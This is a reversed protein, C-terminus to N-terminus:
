ACVERVLSGLRDGASGNERARLAERMRDLRPADGLLSSIEEWLRCPTLGQEELVLAGGIGEMWRANALQHGGAHPYPILIAPVRLAVMEAIGTAGARTIALTAASFADQMERLFPFVRAKMEMARYASEVRAAEAPGAIHLVQIERRRLEPAERWMALGLANVARSGQSGGMMLVVPRAADLGYAALAAARDATKGDFRIPNGTVKVRAKPHLYRRTDPFSVAVADVCGALLRNARGPVVNQEHIVTPIGRTRALFIGVAGLYGGFGVVVDPDSRRFFARMEGVARIQHLLYRPSLWKWLPTFPALDVTVWPDRSSGALTRDVPRRTSVFLCRADSKLREALAVAPMLHGGSGGSVLVVTVGNSGGNWRCRDM